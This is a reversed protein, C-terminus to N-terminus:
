MPFIDQSPLSIEYIRKEVAENALYTPISQALSIKV